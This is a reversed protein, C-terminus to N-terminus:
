ETMNLQTAVAHIDAVLAQPKQNITLHRLLDDCLKVANRPLGKSYQYITAYIEQANGNFPMKKGGAVTWRFELMKNMEEGSLANIALPYMRSALEKYRIIKTALEDQGVLLVQLLKTTSTEFNLLYHVLKLTDRTMNQAEDVLLLPTIGNQYQEILYTEFNKLSSVYSRETKVGFSELVLRLFSNSTKINPSIIYALKYKENQSLQEHLRRLISTKGSGIPGYIYVPGVREQAM